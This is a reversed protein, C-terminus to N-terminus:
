AAKPNRRELRVSTGYERAAEFLLDIGPQEDALAQKLPIWWAKTVDDFSAGASKFLAVQEDFAPDGSNRIILNFHTAEPTGPNTM